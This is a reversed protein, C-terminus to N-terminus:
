WRLALSAKLSAFPESNRKEVAARVNVHQFLQQEVSLSTKIRSDGSRTTGTATLATGSAPLSIRAKQTVRVSGRYGHVPEAEASISPEAFVDFDRSVSWTRSVSASTSVHGTLPNYGAAVRQTGAHGARRMEAWLRANDRTEAIKGNSSTAVSLDVGASADDSSAAKAGMRLRFAHSSLKSPSWILLSDEGARACPTFPMGLILFAAFAVQAAQVSPKM